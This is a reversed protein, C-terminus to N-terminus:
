NNDMEEATWFGLAGRREGFTYGKPAHKVCIASLKEILDEMAETEAETPVRLASRMLAEALDHADWAAVDREYLEDVASETAAAEYLTETVERVQRAADGHRVRVIKVLPGPKM